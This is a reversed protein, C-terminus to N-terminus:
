PSPELSTFVKLNVLGATDPVGIPDPSPATSSISFVVGNSDAGAVTVVLPGTVAGSPVVVVISNASWTTVSAVVGNFRVTSTGQTTGFNIGTITVSTSVPGWSPSLSSISPSTDVVFTFGNSVLGGVTVLMPGTAAGSPVRGVITTNNWSLPAVAVGNISLTSTGQTAGFNAGTVSFMDGVRGIAPAINAIAPVVLPLPMTILSDYNGNLTGEIDLEGKFTGGSSGVTLDIGTWLYFRDAPSVVINSAITGTLTYKTLTTTVATSGTVTCLLTGSPSNLYLKAKPFMTGLNATKKMWLSFSVTSGAVILGSANPVGAQTDFAKILREGTPQGNLEASTLALSAVEPGAMKLQFLGSTSSAETHLHYTATTANLSLNLTTTAAVNVVVGTQSYTQYGTASAEVTYTGASLTAVSYDGTGNTTATNVTTSSQYIKVTAGSIATGGSTVKGAITGTNTLAVNVTTTGGSAVVNGLRLATGFGGASVKLDYTGAQLGNITYSGNAASTTSAKVVNYQLVEITAGSVATSDSARTITGSIAGPGTVTFTSSNSNLGNVTVIVSGTLAGTPVPVGIATNNWSTPSATVGNFKVTSTGQTAGFNSGNITVLTGVPGSSPSLSAITPAAFPMPLAILSDYNGNLTGEIDVEGMFTATSNGATLDVGVWLYFRDSTAVTVNSATNCTLTYKTLTTSLAGTGTVSCLSAGTASNLFVKARPFMTGLAATKKMWLTFNLASGAPIIGAANPVGAQTDFEKILKDGTAQSKLDASQVALSTGDPGATKLQFLGTTTSAEKHLHYTTTLPNLTLNVTTTTGSTVVVSTQSKPQYGTASAEVAYTGAGLAGVSYDGTGNTTASGVVTAGQTVKVGAGSIAAAGPGTVKGSIIGANSLAVNATTTSGVAVAMGSQVVTGFTSASVRLDYTGALLNNITYLGTSPTTVTAVQVGGQLVDVKAGNIGTGDSLRSIKGSIAGNNTLTFTMANSPVGNVTVVVPGTGTGAPVLTTITKDTWSSPAAAVGNFTLTSAGQTNGFSNGNVTVSTGLPGSTPSLSSITPATTVVLEPKNTTAERSNFIAAPNTVAADKLALGLVNRGANKEAIIFSSVDIEYWGSINDVVTVTAIPGPSSVPKTNWTLSNTGTELWTPNTVSYISTVVNTASADSLAGYLRLKATSINGLIGAVDFTMYTESNLGAANQVQLTTSAGYNTTPTGATVHADATPNLPVIGTELAMFDVSPTGNCNFGLCNVFSKSAPTFTYIASSPAVWYNGGEALNQFYYKGGSDSQTTATQTGSLTVTVGGIPLRNANQVKGAISNKYVGTFNGVQNTVLNAFTQSAPIFVMGTDGSAVTYTGGPAVNISYNGNIDTRVIGTQSGSFSVNANIRPNGIPDTVKGTILNQPVIFDFIQDTTLNTFTKSSPNFTLGTYSPTVTYTGGPPVVFSYFGSFDTLVTGTASGSLTVTAPQIPNQYYDKLVGSIVCRAGTFNLTQNSSLNTLTQPTFVYGLKSPTFTYTGGAGVNPFTYYGNADTPVSGTQSGSISVNVGSIGLGSVAGTVQGGVTYSTATFNATQNAAVNSFNTSPPTFGYGISTPTVTFNGGPLINNFLYNGSADTTTTATQAGTLKVTASALAGGTSKLIQGSITFSASFDATQNASLNSFTRNIPSFALGTMSPTITYNGVAPVSFSYNGSADSLMSGSQSGSLSITVGSLSAGATNTVHGSLTYTKLTGVFNMVQSASLNNFTQNIPNITYRDAAPTVTYNGGSPLGGAWYNGTSDTRSTWALSGSIVVNNNSIGVSLSDTLRGSISYSAVDAIKAVFSNYASGGAPISGAPQFAGLTSPFDPSATYGAIYANGAADIAISKGFDDGSSAGLFTSYTTSTGTSNLKTVFVDNNVPVNTISGATMPFNNSYTTGVVYANGSADATIGGVSDTNSGGLYTSYIRSTGTPNYKTVFDDSSGGAFSTRLSGATTPFNGSATGTVYAYGSSDVAIGAGTEGGTGGLYTSYVLATGTTSLKTVFADQFGGGLTSQVANAIPFNTSVTTGTIYASGAPDIAIANATDDGTGGLYTSYLLASGAANIKTVFGDAAYNGGQNSGQVPNVVPFDLSGTGGAIYANGQADVAIGTGLENRYVDPENGGLYTSYVLASGTPNLKTVFVDDLGGLNAKLANATPFNASKASGTVYANGAADVAIAYGRDDGSGGLYSSYVIATGTANLKTVFVDYTGGSNTPQVAGAVPFDLSSTMGTVYASGSADIAIGNARDDNGGGLYTSYNLVPDIILPRRKDYEGIEFGVERKDIFVFRGDVHERGNDGEQYIIPARQRLEGGELEVILDGSKGLRLSQGGSLKMRIVGPDTGPAVIFDYELQRQNGHYVMDVGPYVDQYQIKAYSTVGVHWKDPDNGIFYNTKWPLEDLGVVNPQSNAGALKMRVTTKTLKEDLAASSPDNAARSKAPKRKSLVMVAETGTLFLNYSGGRTLYKVQSDTQGENAVFSIPLTGYTEIARGETAPEPSVVPLPAPINTETPASGKADSVVERPASQRAGSRTSHRPAFAMLPMLSSHYIVALVLIQRLSQRLNRSSVM